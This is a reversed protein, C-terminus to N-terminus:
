IVFGTFTVRVDDNNESKVPNVCHRYHSPFILGTGADCSVEYDLDVLSLEGGKFKRQMPWVLMTLTAGDRHPRYYEGSKYVSLLANFGQCVKFYNMSSSAPFDTDKMETFIDNFLRGGASIDFFESTYVQSLFIGSNQKLSNGQNDQASLTEDTLRGKLLSYEEILDACSINELRITDTKECHSYNFTPM